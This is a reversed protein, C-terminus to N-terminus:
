KQRSRSRHYSWFIQYGITQIQVNQVDGYKSLLSKLALEVATSIAADKLKQTNDGLMNKIKEFM